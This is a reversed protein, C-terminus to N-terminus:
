RAKGKGTSRSWKRGRFCTSSSAGYAHRLAFLRELISGAVNAIVTVRKFSHRILKLGCEVM